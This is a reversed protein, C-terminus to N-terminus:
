RADLIEHKRAKMAFMAVDAARLLAEIREGDRPFVAVGISVSLKPEIGDNAISNCIREAVQNAAEVTTEPLVVAFEDGGYRAATDIDRCFSLVDAVRCLAHSGTMHGYSDNIKKLGDLDFLLVAFERGTRESRKIEMDLVEALRRYNALGTLPDRAALQRLHDELQRQKTVDETIVEYADLESQESLVEQGSLRVRLATGDKRKWEIEIPDVLGQSDPQGLLQARKGPDQILDSALNVALLEERSAYGLMKVMAENVELFKGDLSCRCIGFTLNGALARYRAESHRLGNEARDREHRLTKEYLARRIAVPLHGIHDMEICDYAGRTILEAASERQLIGSVFILPIEKKSQHLLELAQTEKWHPSPYEAVVLDYAHLSLRESFEEPTVVTEASVTFHVKDLELLCREIETAHSHVFLIHLPPLRGESGAPAERKLRAQSTSAMPLESFNV